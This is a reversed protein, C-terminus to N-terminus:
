AYEDGWSGRVNGLHQLQSTYKRTLVRELSAKGKKKQRDEELQFCFENLGFGLSNVDENPNYGTSCFRNRRKQVFSKWDNEALHCFETTDFPSVNFKNLFLDSKCDDMNKSDEDVVQGNRVIESNPIFKIARSDIEFPIFKGVNHVPVTNVHIAHGEKSDIEKARFWSDKVRLYKDKTLQPLEDFCPMVQTSLDNVLTVNDSSNNSDFM